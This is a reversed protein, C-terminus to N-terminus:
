FNTKLLCTYLSIDVRARHRIFAYYVNDCEVANTRRKSAQRCSAEASATKFCVRNKAFPYIISWVGAGEIVDIISLFRLKFDIIVSM